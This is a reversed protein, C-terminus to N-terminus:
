EHCKGSRCGNRLDKVKQRYEGLKYGLSEYDQIACEVMDLDEIEKVNSILIDLTRKRITEDFVM